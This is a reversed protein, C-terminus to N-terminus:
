QNDAQQCCCFSKWRRRINPFLVLYAACHIVACLTYTNLTLLPVVNRELNVYFHDCRKPNWNQMLTMTMTMIEDIFLLFNIGLPVYSILILINKMNDVNRVKELEVIVKKVKCMTNFIIGTYAVRLLGHKVIGIVSLVRRVIQINQLRFSKAVIAAITVGVMEDLNLIIAGILSGIIRVTVRELKSYEQYDLPHCILAGYNLCQLVSLAYFEYLFISSIFTCIEHLKFIGKRAYYLSVNAFNISYFKEGIILVNIIFKFFVTLFACLNQMFLYTKSLGHLDRLLFPILITGLFMTVTLLPM